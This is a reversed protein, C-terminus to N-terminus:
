CIGNSYGREADRVLYGDEVSEFHRIYPTM